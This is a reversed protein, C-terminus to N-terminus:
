EKAGKNIWSIILALEQPSFQAFHPQPGTQVTILRSNAANGPVVVAGNEGGKMIEQYSTLNVGLMGGAAHCDACKAFLSAIQSYNEILNPDSPLDPAVTPTPLM